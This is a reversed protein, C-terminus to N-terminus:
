EGPYEWDLDVGDFGYTRMFQVLSNIFTARNAASSAMNSWAEQTSGPDTFSWGGVSIWTELGSYKTKIATFSSLMSAMNSDMSTITFSEPDFYAFAMNLHTFGVLNLDSPYVIDCPRETSWTEYYATFPSLM